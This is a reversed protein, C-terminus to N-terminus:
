HKVDKLVQIRSKIKSLMLADSLTQCLMSVWFSIKFINKVIQIKHNVDCILFMCLNHLLYTFNLTLFLNVFIYVYQLFVLAEERYRMSYKFLSLVCLPFFWLFM